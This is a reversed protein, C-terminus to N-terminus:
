KTIKKIFRVSCYAIIIGIIWGVLIDIPWHIGVVIRFIGIILALGIFFKGWTKHFLYVTVALTMFVIAHGSPFSDYGGYQYLSHIGSIFPREATILKKAIWQVSFAIIGSFFLAYFIKRVHVHQGRYIHIIIEKMLFIIFLGFFLWAIYRACFILIEPSIFQTISQLFTIITTQLM